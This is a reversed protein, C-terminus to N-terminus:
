IHQLRIEFVAAEGSKLRGADKKDTKDPKDPIAVFSGEEDKDKGFALIIGRTRIAGLGTKPLIPAVNESIIGGRSPKPTDSSLEAAASTASEGLEGNSHLVAQDLFQVPERSMIVQLIETGKEEDFVFVNSSPLEYRQRSHIVNNTEKDYPFLVRKKGGPTVNVVYVYGDFNSEFSVRIQDGKQFTKSPDVPVLNNGEAKLILVRMADTKGSVFLGRARIGQSQAFATAFLFGAAMVLITALRFSTRM